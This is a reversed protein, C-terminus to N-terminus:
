CRGTRHKMHKRSAREAERTQIRDKTYANEEDKDDSGFQGDGFGHDEEFQRKLEAQALEEAERALLPTQGPPFAAAIADGYKKERQQQLKAGLGPDYSESASSPSPPPPRLPGLSAVDDLGVEVTEADTNNVCSPIRTFDFAILNRSSDQHGDGTSDPPPTPQQGGRRRKLGPFEEGQGGEDADKDEVSSHKRKGLRGAM